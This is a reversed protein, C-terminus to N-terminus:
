DAFRLMSSGPAIHQQKQKSYNAFARSAGLLGPAIFDFLSWLDLLRNEIPTGTLIFRVQSTLSKIARTQSAAPNKIAQAEDLIVINWSMKSMWPLRRLTAYTTIVLDIDGLEPTDETASNASSHAIWLRLDPAFRNIETQWNGLLSAPLILLHPQQQAPHPTQHKVLVLLSILQITKGLGMDDALCGGLRMQYLWWLWEVGRQQYPRLLAKLYKTLITQTKKGGNLDPDRLHRLTEHLWAGETVTSWASVQEPPINQAEANQIGALLRLGQAFSLGQQKVQREISKWHSLVQHLKDKDVQVWQGKIQVLQETGALLQKFEQATLRGGDPLAFHLNFDLMADLGVASANQGGISINISPRPPKKPNWWDPVRVIVGATEFFPIEKLFQHAAYADWTLAKFIDGSDVLTKLFISQAAAKQVPLLLSLLQSKKSAGAYEALARGLPVHQANAAKSLGTTYTALFAFPYQSNNKNEALHFCVRGVTNWATHFTALYVALNNDFATLEESLAVPLTRWITKATELNLYDIGRMFPAQHIM